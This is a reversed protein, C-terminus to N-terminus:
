VTYTGWLTAVIRDGVIFQAAPWAGVAGGDTYVRGFIWFQSSGYAYGGYGMLDNAIVNNRFFTAIGDNPTIVPINGNLAHLIDRNIGWTFDTGSGTATISVSVDLIATGNPFLKVLCSGSGSIGSASSNLITGNAVYKVAGLKSKGTSNLNGLDLDAKANLQATTIGATQETASQSFQGVYFYLRQQTAPPQVTSSAGYIPNSRSADFSIAAREYYAGYGDYLYGSDAVVNSRYLAGSQSDNNSMGVDNKTGTINPLGAGIYNGVSDRLGTFGWKTRPLKFRQNTTDLVYYWAVGTSSYVTEIASVDAALVIKHGDDALYYTVTTGNVTETTATKGQIDNVLHNYAQTYVTGDQWSYTDANLWSQDSLTYDCWKHDFLNHIVKGGSYTDVYEKIAKQSSVVENSASNGGLTNDTSINLFKTM